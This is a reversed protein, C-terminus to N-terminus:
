DNYTGFSVLEKHLKVEFTKRMEEYDDPNVNHISANGHTNEVIMVCCRYGYKEAAQIYPQVQQHTAFVNTVFVKEVGTKLTEVTLDICYQRGLLEKEPTWEYTGDPKHYYDDEALVPYKGESLLTALDTKGAGPLGRFIILYKHNM